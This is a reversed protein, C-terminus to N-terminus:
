CLLGVGHRQNLHCPRRWCRLGVGRSSAPMGDSVVEDTKEADLRSAMGADVGRADGRQSSDARLTLAMFYEQAGVKEPGDPPTDAPLMRQVYSGDLQMDWAQRAALYARVVGLYRRGLEDLGAPSGAPAARIATWCTSEQTSM